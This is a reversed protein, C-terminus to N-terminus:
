YCPNFFIDNYYGKLRVAMKDIKNAIEYDTCKVIQAINTGNYVNIMQFNEVVKEQVEENNQRELKAHLKYANSGNDLTDKQVDTVQFLWTSDEIHTIEFWDGEYPVITQPVVYVDVEIKDNEIGFEGIENQLEIKPFGFLIFDKIKNYRIPSDKGVYDYEWKSGLDVSTYDKNINYYTAMTPSKDNFTYFPNNVLNSYLGTLDEVSEKFTTSLIKGM